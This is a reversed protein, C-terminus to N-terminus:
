IFEGKRLYPQWEISIAAMKNRKKYYIKQASLESDNKLETDSEDRPVYLLTGGAYKQIEKLLAPPLIDTANYYNM